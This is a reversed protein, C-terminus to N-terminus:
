HVPTTAASMTNQQCWALKAEALDSCVGSPLFEMGMADLLSNLMQGLARQSFVATDTPFHSSSGPLNKFLM